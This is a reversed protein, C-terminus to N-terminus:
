DFLHSTRPVFLVDYYLPLQNPTSLFNFFMFDHQLMFSVLESMQYSNEFRRRISAECIIFQVLGWHKTLGKLIELEFGEADIKIGFPPKCDISDLLLEDLTTTDVAYQAITPSATLATRELFTTKGGEQERLIRRGAFAALGKNVFVHRGPKDRLLSEAERRPDVLVFLCDDFAEYLSKTGSDVGVDIVTKVNFGLSRLYDSEFLGRANRYGLHRALRALTERIATM